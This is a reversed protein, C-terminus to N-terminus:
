PRLGCWFGFAVLAISYIVFLSLSWPSHLLGALAIDFAEEAVKYRRQWKTKVPPLTDDTM